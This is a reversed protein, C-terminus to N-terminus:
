EGGTNLADIHTRFARWDDFAIMEPDQQRAHPVIEIQRAMSPGRGSKISEQNRNRERERARNLIARYLRPSCVIDWVCDVAFDVSHVIRRTM